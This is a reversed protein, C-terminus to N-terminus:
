GWSFSYPAPLFASGKNAFRRLSARFVPAKARGECSRARIGARPLRLSGKEIEIQFAYRREFQLEVDAPRVIRAAIGKGDHLFVAIPEDEQVEFVYIFTRRAAM